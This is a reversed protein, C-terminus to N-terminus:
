AVRRNATPADEQLRAQTGPEPWAVLGISEDILRGFLTLRGGLAELSHEARIDMETRLTAGAPRDPMPMTLRVTEVAAPSNPSHYCLVTETAGRNDRRTVALRVAGMKEATDTIVRWWADASNVERLRLQAEEFIRKDRTARRSRRVMGRVADFTGTLRFAGVLRLFLGMLLVVGLFVVLAGAGGTVMMFMGLAACVATIGYLVLVIHRQRLGMKILHHHIHRRDPAFVSRRELARRFMSFLTDFIPVGMALLPLALGVATATKTSSLVSAGALMFGLFLSGCDGLFVRAPNFNFVLFGALGGLMALMVVAMVTQQAQLAFAAVVACAIASIGAALGDLGDILNLSNAIGVIWLMTLPWSLWGFEIEFLGKVALSEIRVGMACLVAAAAFEAVLKRRAGLGRIDDVLGVALVFTATCLLGVIKLLDRGVERGIAGDFAVASLVAVIVALFIAVGGIRPTPTTHLKRVGPQDVAGIRPALRIM